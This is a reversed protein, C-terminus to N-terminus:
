VVHAVARLWPTWGSSRSMAAPQKAPRCCLVGIMAAYYNGLETNTNPNGHSDDQELYPKVVNTKHM